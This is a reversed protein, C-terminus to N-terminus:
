GDTGRPRRRFWLYGALAAAAIVVAAAFIWQGTAAAPRPAAAFGLDENGDCLNTAGDRAYVRYRHGETFAYGCAPSDSHTTLEAERGVQGKEISEVDFTVTVTGQTWPRDVKTAIGTFAVEANELADVEACSCAWAPRAATFFLASVALILVVLARRLLTV